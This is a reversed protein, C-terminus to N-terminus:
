SKPQNYDFWIVILIKNSKFLNEMCNALFSHRHKYWARQLKAKQSQGGFDCCVCAVGVCLRPVVFWLVTTVVMVTLPNPVVFGLVANLQSFVTTVVM